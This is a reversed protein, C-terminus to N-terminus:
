GIYNLSYDFKNNVFNIDRKVVKLLADHGNAIDIPTDMDSKVCTLMEETEAKNVKPLIEKFGDYMPADKKSIIQTVAEVAVPDNKIIKVAFSFAEKDILLDDHLMKMLNSLHLQYGIDKAYKSYQVVVESNLSNLKNDIISKVENRYKVLSMEVRKVEQSKGYEKGAKTLMVDTEIKKLNVPTLIIQSELEKMAKLLNNKSM